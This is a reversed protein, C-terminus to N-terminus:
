ECKGYKETIQIVIWGDLEQERDSGNQDALCWTRFKLTITIPLQLKYGHVM